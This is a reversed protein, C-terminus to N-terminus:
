SVLAVNLMMYLFCVIVISVKAARRFVRSEDGPPRRVEELVLNANEYGFFAREVVLFTLGWNYPKSTTGAFANQLNVLGYPTTADERAASTRNNALAAWGAVAVFLLLAIKYGALIVLVKINAGRSYAQALCALATAGIAIIKQLAYNPDSGEPTSAFVVAQGFALANGQSGSLITFM